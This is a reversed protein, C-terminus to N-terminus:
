QLQAEKGEAAVGAGGGEIGGAAVDIDLIVKDERPPAGGAFLPILFSPARGGPARAGQALRERLTELQLKSSLYGRNRYDTYYALKNPPPRPSRIPIDYREPHLHSHLALRTRYTSTVSGQAKEIARIATASAATVEIQVGQATWREAGNALLKVGHKIHSLCGSKLLARM